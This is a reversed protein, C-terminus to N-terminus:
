QFTMTAQATKPGCTAPQEGILGEVIVTYRGPQLSRVLENDLTQEGFLALLPPARGLLSGDFGYVSSRVDRIVNGNSRVPVSLFGGYDAARGGPLKPFTVPLTDKCARLKLVRTAQKPGCHRSANPEGTLVLTYGGVQLPRFIRGLRLKLTAVVEVARRPASAGMREGSFTYLDARLNRIRVGRPNVRVLVDKTYAVAYPGDPLSVKVPLRTICAASAAGPVIAFTIAALVVVGLVPSVWARAGTVARSFAVLARAAPRAAAALAGAVRRSRSRRVPTPAADRLPM